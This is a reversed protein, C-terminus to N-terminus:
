PVTGQSNAYMAELDQITLNLYEPYIAKISVDDFSGWVEITLGPPGTVLGPFQNQIWPFLNQFTFNCQPTIVGPGLNLAPSSPSNIGANNNWGGTSTNRFVFPLGGPGLGIDASVFVIDPSNSVRQVRQSVVRLSGNTARVLVKETYINTVPTFTSGLLYDFNVRKLIIKDVGGRLAQNIVTNTVANTIGPVNTVVVGVSGGLVPLYPSLGSSTSGARTNTFTVLSVNALLTENNFNNTRYLYRLGGVDDRTLGNFFTGTALSFENASAVTSFFFPVEEADYNPPGGTNSDFIAYDYTNGNVVNTPTFTFPDFNRMLVAYNTATNNAIVTRSRLCFVFEEPIALGMYRILESLVETKIDFLGLAAAQPNQGMTSLPLSNLYADSMQSAPPLDNLIKIAQEIEAIGNTGFYNIFTPDFAYTLIPTNWRYEEGLNMPAEFDGGNGYNLQATQWPGAPGLLSFSFAAPLWTVLGLGVLIKKISCSMFSM